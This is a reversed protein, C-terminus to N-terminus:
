QKGDWELFEKWTKFQKLVYHKAPRGAWLLTMFCRRADHEFDNRWFLVGNKGNGFYICPCQKHQNFIKEIDIKEDVVHKGPTDAQLRYGIDNDYPKLTDDAANYICLNGLTPLTKWFYPCDASGRAFVWGDAKSDNVVIAYLNSMSVWEPNEWIEDDCPIPNEWNVPDYSYLRRTRVVSITQDEYSSFYDTENARLARTAVTSDISCTRLVSGLLLVSACSELMRIQKM